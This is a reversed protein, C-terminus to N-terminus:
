REFCVWQLWFIAQYTRKRRFEHRCQIGCVKTSRWFITQSGQYKSPAVHVDDSEPRGVVATRFVLRQPDAQPTRQVRRTLFVVTDGDSITYGKMTAYARVYPIADHVQALAMGNAM